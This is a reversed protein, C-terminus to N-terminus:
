VQPTPIKISSLKKTALALLANYKEEYSKTYFSKDNSSAVKILYEINDSIALDERSITGSQLMMFKEEQNINNFPNMEICATHYDIMAQNGAFRKNIFEVELSDIINGSLNYERANKINAELSTLTIIDYNKPTNITPLIEDIDSFQYDKLHGLRLYAITKIDFPMAFVTIYYAINYLFKNTQEWDYSKSIGSETTPMEDLFDMCVGKLGSLIDDKVFTDLLTIPELSKEIYKAPFWDPDAVETSNKKNKVLYLGFMGNAITGSGHCTNCKHQIERDNEYRSINGKGNCDTCVATAAVAKDPYLHMKIGAEKDIDKRVAKNFYPVIAQIFSERFYEVKNKQEIKNEFGGQYRAPIYGLKHIYEKEIYNKEDKKEIRLYSNKDVKWVVKDSEKFVIYDDYVKLHTTSFNVCIINLYNSTDTIEQNKYYAEPITLCMGNADLIFSNFNELFFNKVYESIVTNIDYVDKEKYIVTFDSARSISKIINIIKQTVAKTPSEFTEKKYEAVWGPESPQYAKQLEINFEGTFHQNLDRYTKVKLDNKNTTFNFLASYNQM